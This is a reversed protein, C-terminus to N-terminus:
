EVGCCVRAKFLVISTEPNDEIGFKELCPFVCFVFEREAHTDDVTRDLDNISEMMQETFQINKDVTSQFFSVHYQATQLSLTRQLDAAADLISVLVSHASETLGVSTLNFLTQGVDRALRHLLRDREYWLTHKANSSEIARVTARRWARYETGADQIGEAFPRIAALPGTTPLGVIVPEQMIQM